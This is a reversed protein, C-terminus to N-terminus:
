VGRPEKMTQLCDMLEFRRSLSIYNRQVMGVEYLNGYLILNILILSTLWRMLMLSSLTELTVITGYFLM